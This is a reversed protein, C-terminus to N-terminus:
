KQNFILLRDRAARLARWREYQARDVPNANERGALWFDFWHVNRRYIKLRNRPQTKAHGEDAYVVQEVPRGFARLLGILQLFARYEEEPEHCLM